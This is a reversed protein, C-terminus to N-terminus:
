FSCGYIHRCHPTPPPFSVFSSLKSGFYPYIIIPSPLFFFFDNELKKEGGGGGVGEGGEFYTEGEVLAGGEM